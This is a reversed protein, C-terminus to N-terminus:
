HIDWLIFDFTYSHFNVNLFPSLVWIIMFNWRKFCHSSYMPIWLTIFCYVGWYLTCLLACFQIVIIFKLERVFFCASHSQEISLWFYNRFGSLIYKYINILLGGSLMSVVTMVDTMRMVRRMNILKTTNIDMPLM